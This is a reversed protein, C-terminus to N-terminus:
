EVVWKTNIRGGRALVGTVLHLGAALGTGDLDTRTGGTVPVSRELQGNISRVEVTRLPESAVVSVGAGGNPRLTFSTGVSATTEAMGTSIGMYNLTQQLFLVRNGYTDIQVPDFFTSMVNHGNGHHVMSASGFLVYDTPGMQYIPDTALMPTCGDAWWFTDFIWQLTPAFASGAEESAYMEPCGLGDDDGYSQVDYSSIGMVSSPFDNIEFTVPASGYNAYLMDTGIFWIPVGLSELDTLDLTAQWLGLDVGDGSCYWIVLSYDSMDVLEPPGDELAVDYVDYAVGTAALDNLITDTNYLLDDNDNVFLVQANLALCAGILAVLVLPGRLRTVM